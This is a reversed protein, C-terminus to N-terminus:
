HEWKLNRNSTPLLLKGLQQHCHPCSQLEIALSPQNFNRSELNIVKLEPYNHACILREQAFYTRHSADNGKEIERTIEKRAWEPIDITSLYKIDKVQSRELVYNVVLKLNKIFWYEVCLIVNPLSLTLFNSM